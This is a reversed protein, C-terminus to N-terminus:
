VTPLGLDEFSASATRVRRMVVSISGRQRFVNVRFRGVGPVSYAFDAESRRELDQRRDAPTISHAVLATDDPSLASGKLRRLEGDVRILPPSGVVLHLDSGGNETMLRLLGTLDLM